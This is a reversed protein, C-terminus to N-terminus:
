VFYVTETVLRGGVSNLSLRGNVGAASMTMVLRKRWSCGNDRICFYYTLWM